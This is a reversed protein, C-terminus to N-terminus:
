YAEETLRRLLEASLLAREVFSSRRAWEVDGSACHLNGGVPGLGDLTPALDWLHSGDSAGRRLAPVLRQGAERGVACALEALRASGPNEPWPPYSPLLTVEVQCRLGDAASAVTGPGALRRVAEIGAAHDEVSRARVDVSCWARAPVTNLMTGGEIRGVNCTFDRGYDTLGELREVIRCLERVASAGREHANGSHAARGTVDVRFRAGGKRAWTLTSGGGAPADFGPEYVLCARTRAGALRRAEVPFDACAGEESADFLVHVTAAGLAAPAVEGLARLAMWLVITGGKIDAVGPGTIRDGESRWGFGHRREEEPAYVTDLHSVLMLEAPGTGARRLFRHAGRREGTSPVARADFGLPRFLEEVYRGCANVGDANETFSNIGVLEELRALADGEISRLFDRLEQM